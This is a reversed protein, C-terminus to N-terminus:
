LVVITTDKTAEQAALKQQFINVQGQTYQLGVQLEVNNAIGVTLLANRKDCFCTYVMKFHAILQQVMTNDTAPFNTWDLCATVFQKTNVISMYTDQIFDALAYTPLEKMEALHTLTDRNRKFLVLIIAYM